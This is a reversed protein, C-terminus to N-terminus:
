TLIRKVLDLDVSKKGEGAMLAFANHCHMLIMRPNGESRRWIETIAEETFPRISNPTGLYSAIMTKAEELSFPLLPVVEMELIEPDSPLFETIGKIEDLSVSLIVKTFLKTKMLDKVINLLELAKKKTYMLSIKDLDDLILLSGYKASSKELYVNLRMFDDLAVRKKRLLKEKEHPDILLQEVIEYYMARKSDPTAFTSVYVCFFLNENNVFERLYLLFASKGSGRAGALALFPKRSMLFEMVAKWATSRIPAQAISWREDVHMIAFLPFPNYSPKTFWETSNM